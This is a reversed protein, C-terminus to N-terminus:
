CQVTPDHKKQLETSLVTMNGKLTFPNRHTPKVKSNLLQKKNLM